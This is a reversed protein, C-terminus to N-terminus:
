PKDKKEQAPWECQQGENEVRDYPQEGKREAQDADGDAGDEIKKFRNDSEGGADEPARRM